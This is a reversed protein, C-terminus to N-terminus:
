GMHSIAIQIYVNWESIDANMKMHFVTCHPAIETINLILGSHRMYRRQSKQLFM